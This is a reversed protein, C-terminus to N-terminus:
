CFTIEGPMTKHTTYNKRKRAKQVYVTHCVDKYESRGNGISTSNRQM